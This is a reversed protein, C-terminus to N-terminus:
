QASKQNNNNKANGWARFADPLSEAGLIAILAYILYNVIKEDITWAKLMAGGLIILVVLAVTWKRSSLIKSILNDNKM